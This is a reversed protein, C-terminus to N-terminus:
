ALIFWIPSTWAIEGDVQTIRLYYYCSQARGRVERQLVIRTLDQQDVWDFAVDVDDGRYTCIEVNNRVIEIRDVESTGYIQASIHREQILGRNSESIEVISGMEQGDISFDVLTRHGTTAYCRRQRLAGFIGDQSPEDAKVATLGARYGRGAEARVADTGIGLRSNSGAGVGAVVGTALVSHVTRRPHRDLRIDPNRGSWSERNGWCSYVELLHTAVMEERAADPLSYRLVAGADEGTQFTFSERSLTPNTGVALEFDLELAAEDDDICAHLDGWLPADGESLIPNSVTQLGAEEERVTLRLPEAQGSEVIFELEVGKGEPDEYRQSPPLRVGARDASLSLWGTWNRCRNGLADRAVVRLRVPEGPKVSSPAIAELREVPGPLVDVIPVNEVAQYRRDEQDPESYVWVSFVAPGAYPSTFAQGPGDGYSLVIQEGSRMPGREIFLFVGQDGAEERLDEEVEGPVPEVAISLASEINGTQASVHGPASPNDTQPASFGTPITVRIVSGPSLGSEGVSYTISWSGAKGAQISQPQNLTATGEAFNM